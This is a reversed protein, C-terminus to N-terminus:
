CLEPHLERRLLEALEEPTTATAGFRLDHVHAGDPSVWRLQVGDPRLEALGVGLVDRLAVGALRSAARRLEDQHCGVAHEVSRQLYGQNLVHDPSRFAALPVQTPEGTSRRILMVVSPRLSVVERVDSCCECDERSVAELRGALSLTADREDSRPDGVASDLTVLARRGEAAAVALPSGPVTSFMPVGAVDQLGLGTDGALVDDVGDVVVQASEPCSLISRAAAALRVPALTRYSVTM